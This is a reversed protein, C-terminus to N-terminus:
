TDITLRHRVHSLLNQALVQRSATEQFSHPAEHVTRPLLELRGNSYSANSHRINRAIPHYESRPISLLTRDVQLM